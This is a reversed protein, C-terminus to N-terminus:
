NPPRSKPGTSLPRLAVMCSGDRGLPLSGKIRRGLEIPYVAPSAHGSCDEGYHRGM